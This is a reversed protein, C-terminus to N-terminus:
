NKMDLMLQFVQKSTQADRYTLCYLLQNTLGQTFASISSVILFREKLLENLNQMLEKGGLLKCIQNYLDSLGCIDFLKGIEFRLSRSYKQIAYEAFENALACHIISANTQPELFPLSNEKIYKKIHESFPHDNDSLDGDLAEYCLKDFENTADFGSEGASFVLIENIGEFLYSLYKDLLYSHQGLKARIDFAQKFFEDYTLKLKQTSLNGFTFVENEFINM